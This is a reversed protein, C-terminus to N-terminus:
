HTWKYVSVKLPRRTEVNNIYDNSAMVAIIKGDANMALSRGMFSNKNDGVIDLGRQKWKSNEWNYAQVYGSNEKNQNDKPGGVM